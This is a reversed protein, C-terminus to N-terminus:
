SAGRWVHQTQWVWVVVHIVVIIRHPQIYM